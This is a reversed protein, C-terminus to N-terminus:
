AICFRLWWSRGASSTLGLHAPDQQHQVGCPPVACSFARSTVGRKMGWATTSVAIVVVAVPKIAFAMAVTTTPTISPIAIWQHCIYAENSVEEEM